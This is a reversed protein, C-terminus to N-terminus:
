KADIRGATQVTVAMARIIEEAEHNEAGTPRKGQQEGEQVVLNLNRQMRSVFRRLKAVDCTPFLKVFAKDANTDVQDMESGKLDKFAKRDIVGKAAM